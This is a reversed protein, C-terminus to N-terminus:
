RVSVRVTADGLRAPGGGPPDPIGFYGQYLDFTIRRVLSDVVELEGNAGSVIAEGLREVEPILRLPIDDERIVKRMAETDNRHAETDDIKLFFRHGGMIVDLKKAYPVGFAQDNLFVERVEDYRTAFVVGLRRNWRLARLFRFFLPLGTDVGWAMVPALLRAKLGTPPPRLVDGAMSASM